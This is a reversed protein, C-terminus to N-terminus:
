EPSEPSRSWDVDYRQALERGVQELLEDTEHSGSFTGMEWNRDPHAVRRLESIYPAGSGVRAVLGSNLKQLLKDATILEKTM